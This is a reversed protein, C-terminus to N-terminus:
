INVKLLHGLVIVHLMYDIAIARLIEQDIVDDILFSLIQYKEVHSLEGAVLQKLSPVNFNPYIPEIEINEWSQEDIRSLFKRTKPGKVHKLLLGMTRQIWPLTLEKLSKMDTVDAALYGSNIDLNQGYLIRESLSM